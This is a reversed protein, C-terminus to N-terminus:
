VCQTYIYLPDNAGYKPLAHSVLCFLYSKWIGRGRNVAGLQDVVQLQACKTHDKKNRMAEPSNKTTNQKLQNIILNNQTLSVTSWVVLRCFFQAFVACKSGLFQASSGL